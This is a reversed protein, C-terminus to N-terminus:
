IALLDQEKGSAAEDVKSIYQDTLKQLRTEARKEDDENISKQKLLEKFNNNAERRINRVAVRTQEAEDRVLRILEKRREENLAPLPVRITMGVSSPNLGLESTRIAKEIKAIMDKEWPSVVLSRTNEISVSAVQNIPVQQGYYEVKIHDLLSPHARGTRLKTLENKLVEVSKQMRQEANTIIENIM